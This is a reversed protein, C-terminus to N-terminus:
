IGGAYEKEIADMISWLVECKFALSDVCASKQASTTAHELCYALAFEVDVPAQSQRASFYALSEDTIFSYHQKLATMRSTIIGPSFLETLSAAIAELVSAQRCFNVYADVAFRM